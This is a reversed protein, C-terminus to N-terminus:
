RMLLSAIEEGVDPHDFFPMERCIIALHEVDKTEQYKSWHKAVLDKRQEYKSKTNSSTANTDSKGFIKNWGSRYEPTSVSSFHSISTQSVSKQSANTKSTDVSNGSTDKPKNENSTKPGESNAASTKVEKSDSKKTESM